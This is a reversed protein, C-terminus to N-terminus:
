QVELELPGLFLVLCPSFQPAPAQSNLSFSNNCPLTNISIDFSSCSGMMTLDYLLWRTHYFPHPGHLTSLPAPPLPLPFPPKVLPASTAQFQPNKSYLM